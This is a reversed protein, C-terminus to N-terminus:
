VHIGMRMVAYAPISVFGIEQMGPVLLMLLSAVCVTAWLLQWYAGFNAEETM